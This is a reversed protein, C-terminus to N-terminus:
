KKEKKGRKRPTWPLLDPRCWSCVGSTGAMFEPYALMRDCKPCENWRGALTQWWRGNFEIYTYGDGSDPKSALGTM